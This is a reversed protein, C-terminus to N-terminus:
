ALGAIPHDRDCAHRSRQSDKARVFDGRDDGISVEVAAIVLTAVYRALAEQEPTLTDRVNGPVDGPPPLVTAADGTPPTVRVGV